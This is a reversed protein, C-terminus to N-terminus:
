RGERGSGSGFAAALIAESTMAGEGFEAVARGRRFVVVRHSLGVVEELESSILIVGAGRAAIELLLRHIAVKAAVDVGRTPEDAILVAPDRSLWKSVLVKQQNGGSLAAVPALPSAARIDALDTWRAALGRVRGRSVVGGRTVSGLSALALNDALSRQLVLGQGKRDEPIMALGHAMVDAPSSPTLWDSGAIRVAGRHMRDAGFVCRAFESRGAGVLGALGVIEGRRVCISVGNVAPARTVERSEFVVPAGPPVPPKAPYLTSLSRGVMKRILSEETEEHATGTSVVAGDRLVSVRDALTLIEALFHSTIVVAAGKATLRRLLGALREAREADLATTPEDLLLVRPRRSLARLIELVQREALSLDGVRADPDLAFGTEECLARFDRRAEGRRLTGVPARGTGLYVNEVVTRAPVATLEQTAMALGARQARRPNGGPLPQGHVWVRGRDPHVLGAAIRLLTSKGAGNEGVTAYIEGPAVRLDVAKLVDVPGYRKVVGEMVLASPPAAGTAAM